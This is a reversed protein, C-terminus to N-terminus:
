HAESTPARAVVPPVRTAARDSRGLPGPELRETGCAVATSARQRSVGGLAELLEENERRIRDIAEKSEQRMRRVEEGARELAM